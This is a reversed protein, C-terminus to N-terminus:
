SLPGTLPMQPGFQSGILMQYLRSGASNGPAIVAITGGRMADKRRDIRFGNMQQTPGHCGVCYTKMLPQVDRAFDVTAPTQAFLSGSSFLLIGALIIRRFM